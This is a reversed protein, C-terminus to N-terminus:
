ADPRRRAARQRRRLGLRLPPDLRRPRGRRSADFHSRAGPSRRPVSRSAAGGAGPQPERGGRGAGLLDLGPPTKPSALGDPPRPRVPQLDGGALTSAAGTPPSLWTVRPKSRVVPRRPRRYGPASGATPTSPTSSCRPARRRGHVGGGRLPEDGSPRSRSRRRSAAARGPGRGARAASLAGGAGVAFQFVRGDSSSAYLHAGDPTLAVDTLPGGSSVAALGAPELAATPASRTASSRGEAITVYVSAATRPCPWPPLADRLARGCRTPELLGDPGIAFQLLRARATTPWTSRKAGDPDAAIASPVSAPWSAPRRRPRLSAPRRERRVPARAGARRRRGDRLALDGDPTMTLRRPSRPRCRRRARAPTLAGGGGVALQVM